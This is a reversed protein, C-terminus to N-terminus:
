VEFVGCYSPFGYRAKGTHCILNPSAQYHSEGHSHGCLVVCKKDPNDEMVDLLMDGMIKSSFHPMWDDDSIKGNNTASERFPPVHMAVYVTTFGAAFADLMQANIYDASERALEQLKTYRMSKTPCRANDLEQICHYDQMDVRSTFGNAYGWDYFGDAGVLATTETLPIVGSSGLYWVGPSFKTKPASYDETLWKRINVISGDYWDHNGVCFFVPLNPFLTKLSDLDWRLKRSESIDGTIVLLDPNQHLVSTAFNNIQELKANPFHIDTAWLIKTM